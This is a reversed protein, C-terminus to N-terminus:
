GNEAAQGDEAATQDEGCGTAAFIYVPNQGTMLEYSGVKRAKAVSVQTIEVDRFPLEKLCTNAESVTELTIANIVVRVTPNKELLLQLIARLNGSSGGIFAHTPTPLETLAEPASGQVPQINPAGFRRANEQILAFAAPKKEIAWVEGDPAQMAMEVTCSGTGAGIDWAVSNRKLQLKAISLSRVESKTMPADGRLFEEDPICSRVGNHYAPNEILAVCLGDFSQGSLEEPTGATIHEDPYHLREGITLTVESLGYEMLERCLKEVNDKGGLLTFTRYNERVTAILNSRRGHISMLKVDEWAIRLRSCLYVVSSIGPLLNVQIGEQEFAAILRRAGSYFGVDGSLSVAIRRYEPHENVFAVMKAPDYADFLPKGTKRFLDLMRGSGLICDAQAFAERAEGTMNEECGMGIGILTACRPQAHENETQEADATKSNESGTLKLQEIGFHRSLLEIGEEVSVGEQEPPRGILVLTVGAERAAEAKEAFGGARGSEKTVLYRARCQRLMAVNLEKSFPGQMCILHAGVFGLEACHAAVEPTSLVRAYLREQYDPVVTFQHLEKSGTTVLVNGTTKKLYAAAEEVSDVWVCSIEPSLADSTRILRLYAAGARSCAEHINASVLVAYPHTADIVLPKQEQEIMKQMEETLLRGDRVTLHPQETVLQRGYETAVCCLTEVGQGALWESITRGETTGAFVIAQKM